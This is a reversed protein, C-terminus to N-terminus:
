MSSSFRDLILLFVFIEGLSDGVAAVLDKHCCRHIMKTLSLLALNVPESSCKLKEHDELCKIAFM